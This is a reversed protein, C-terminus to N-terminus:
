HLILIYNEFNILVLRHAYRGPKGLSGSLLTFSLCTLVRM